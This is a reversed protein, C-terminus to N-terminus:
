QVAKLKGKDCASDEKPWSLQPGKDIVLICGGECSTYAAAIMLVWPILNKSQRLGNNCAFGKLWWM